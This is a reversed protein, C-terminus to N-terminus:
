RLIHYNKERHVTGIVPFHQALTALQDIVVASTTRICIEGDPGNAQIHAEPGYKGERVQYSVIEVDIGEVEEVKKEPVPYFPCGIIDSIRRSKEAM